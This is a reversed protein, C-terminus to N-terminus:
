EEVPEEPPELGDLLEPNEAFKRLVRFIGAPSFGARLLRGYAAAISKQDGFPAATRYKRRVYAEILADEDVDAYIRRVTSEALSPAVRRARLDRAVRRPGLKRDELRAAAYGEAFGRDDLYGLSKLRAIVTEVDGAQEARSRLKERLEGTSCARAALRKLAYQFLAEEDLTHPRPRSM